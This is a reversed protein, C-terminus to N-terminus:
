IYKKKYFSKQNLKIMKISHDCQKLENYGNLDNPIQHILNKFSWGIDLHNKVYNEKDTKM